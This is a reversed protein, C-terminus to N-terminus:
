GGPVGTYTWAPGSRPTWPIIALIWSECLSTRETEPRPWADMSMSEANTLGIGTYYDFFWKFFEVINFILTSNGTVDIYFKKNPSLENIKNLQNYSVLNAAPRGVLYRGRPCPM